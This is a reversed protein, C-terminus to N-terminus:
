NEQARGANLHLAYRVKWLFRAGQQLSNFEEETCFNHHYLAELKDIDFYRKVMWHIMQIDRLGGPSEKVNPELDYEIDGFKQHRNRQEELKAKFFKKGTWIKNKNIKNWLDQYLQSNGILVRSELVNTMVTIDSKALALCQKLTRFSHGLNLGIDWLLTIFDQVPQANVRDSQCLILIDIDSFPHLESRGYGGVAILAFDDISLQCQLWAHQLLFDVMQSRQQLLSTVGQGAKFNDDLRASGEQLARQFVETVNTSETLTKAFKRQDIFIPAAFANEASSTM